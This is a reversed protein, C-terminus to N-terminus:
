EMSLKNRVSECLDNLFADVAGVVKIDDLKLQSVAEHV